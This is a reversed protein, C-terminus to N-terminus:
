TNKFLSFSYLTTQNCYSICSKFSHIYFFNHLFRGLPHNLVFICAVYTLTTRITGSFYLTTCPPYSFSSTLPSFFFALSVSYSFLNGKYLQYLSCSISHLLYSSQFISLSFMLVLIQLPLSYLLVKIFSIPRLFSFLNFVFVLFLFHFLAFNLLFDCYYFKTVDLIYTPTLQV